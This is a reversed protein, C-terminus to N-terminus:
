VEARGTEPAPLEVDVGFHPAVYGITGRVEALAEADLVEVNAKVLELDDRALVDDRGCRFAEELADIYRQRDDRWVTTSVRAELEERLALAAPEADEPYGLAELLHSAAWTVTAIAEFAPDFVGPPGAAEPPAVYEEAPLTVTEIITSTM